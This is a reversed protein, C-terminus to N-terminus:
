DAATTEYLDYADVGVGIRARRRYDRRLAAAAIEHAGEVECGYRIDKASTVVFRPRTALAEVIRSPGVYPFDCQSQSPILFPTAPRLGAAAYIWLGNPVSNVVFLRDENRPGAAHIAAAVQEISSNDVHERTGGLRWSIAVEIAALVFVGLRAARSATSTAPTVGAVGFGSLLLAPALLPALYCSLLAHQAFVGVLALAFWLGLASIPARRMRTWCQSLATATAILLVPGVDKSFDLFRGFGALLSVSDSHADPRRMAVSVVDTLMVDLADHAAFYAIFVLPAALAAIAFRVAVRLRRGNAEADNLLIVLLAAAEFAATQKVMGAAGIALGAFVAKKSMALGSLAFFMALTTLAMLLSYCDNRVVVQPLLPFLVAAYVGVGPAGYRRALHFMLSATLADSAIGIAHLAAPGAGFILQSFALVAFFGPPKVDFAGVYPVVGQRWLLAVETFFGEDPDGYHQFPWRILITWALIIAFSMLGPGFTSANVMRILSNPRDLFRGAALTM